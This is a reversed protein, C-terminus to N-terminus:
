VGASRGGKRASPCGSVSLAGSPELAEARWTRDGSGRWKAPDCAAPLRRAASQAISASKPRCLGQFSSIGAKRARTALVWTPPWRPSARIARGFPRSVVSVRRPQCMPGPCLAWSPPRTVGLGRPDFRGALREEAMGVNLLWGGEGPEEAEPRGDFRSTSCSFWRVSEGSPWGGRGAVSGGPADSLLWDGFVSVSGPVPSLQSAAQGLAGLGTDDRFGRLPWGPGLPDRLATRM